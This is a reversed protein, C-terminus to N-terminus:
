KKKDSKAEQEFSDELDWRAVVAEQFRMLKSLAFFTSAILFASGYGVPTVTAVFLGMITVIILTLAGYKLLKEM